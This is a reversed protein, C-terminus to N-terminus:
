VRFQYSSKVCSKHKM